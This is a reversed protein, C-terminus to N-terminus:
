NQLDIWWVFIKTYCHKFLSCNFRQVLVQLCTWISVDDHNPVFSNMALSSVKGILLVGLPQLARTGTRESTWNHIWDSHLPNSLYALKLASETHSIFSVAVMKNCNQRLCVVVTRVIRRHESIRLDSVRCMLIWFVLAPKVFNSTISTICNSSLICFTSSEQRQHNWHHELTLRHPLLLEQIKM